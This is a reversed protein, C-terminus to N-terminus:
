WSSLAPPSKTRPLSSRAPSTGLRRRLPPFSALPAGVTEQRIPPVRLKWPRHPLQELHRLLSLLAPPVLEVTLKLAAAFASPSSLPQHAQNLATLHTRM